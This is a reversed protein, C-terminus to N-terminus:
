QAQKKRKKSKYPGKAQTCEIIWAYNMDAVHIECYREQYTENPETTIKVDYGDLFVTIWRFKLPCPEWQDTPYRRMEDVSIWYDLPSDTYTNKPMCYYGYDCLTCKVDEFLIARIYFGMTPTTDGKCVVSGGEATFKLDHNPYRHYGHEARTDNGEIQLEEKFQRENTTEINTTAKCGFTLLLGATLSLLAFKTLNTNYYTM